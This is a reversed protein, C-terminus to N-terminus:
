GWCFRWSHLSIHDFSGNYCQLLSVTSLALGKLFVDFDVVLDTLDARVQLRSLLVQSLSGCGVSFRHVGLSGTNFTGEFLNVLLFRFRLLLKSCLLLVFFGAALFVAAFFGAALLGALSAALFSAAFLAALLDAASFAKPTLGDKM